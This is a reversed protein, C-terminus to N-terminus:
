TGGAAMFIPMYMALLIVAVIGGLVVLIIPEILKTMNDISENVEDEFVASVKELMNDISGTQEGVRIMQSVMVPFYVIKEIPEALTKGEVVSKKVMKLDGSIVSNDITEICIDMSDILSVGATLMTGLTRSFSALNGKIIISGFLPLSMSFKDYIPKGTPTKIFQNLVVLLVFFGPIGVTSYEQIFESADIVFQTIGPIEQGTDTLMGTFQPVVFVLMGYIVAIGVLVVVSPYIMASKIQTKIKEQRELFQCLKELIMDLIGGAEGAKILNCYLKDFGKQSIMAEALTKGSGVMSAINKISMKLVPNKQQKFLIELAQLIPVGANIMVAFQKTFTALDSNSFPRAFGKEVLWVSLDIELLSPPSVKKPRIGQGRLLRKAEKETSAQISGGVKKGEKTFGEYKFNAM